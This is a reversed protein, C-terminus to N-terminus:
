LFCGVYMGSYVGPLHASTVSQPMPALWREPKWEAADPGWIAPDSNATSIGIIVNQGEAIPVEHILQGDTGKVPRHLPITVAKRASCSLILTRRSSILTPTRM